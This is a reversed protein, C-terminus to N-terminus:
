PYLGPLSEVDDRAQLLRPRPERALLEWLRRGRWCGANDAFLAADLRQLEAVLEPSGARAEIHHLGSLRNDKWHIRGWEILARRAAAADNARCARRLKLRARRRKDIVVIKEGIRARLDTVGAVVASLLM